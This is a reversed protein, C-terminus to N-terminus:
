RFKDIKEENIEKQISLTKNNSELNKSVIAIIPKESFGKNWLQKILEM